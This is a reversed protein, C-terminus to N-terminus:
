ESVWDSDHVGEDECENVRRTALVRLLAQVLLLTM